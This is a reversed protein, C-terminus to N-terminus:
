ALAITDLGVFTRLNRVKGVALLAVFGPYHPTFGLISALYDVNWGAAEAPAIADITVLAGKLGGGAALRELLIVFGCIQSRM